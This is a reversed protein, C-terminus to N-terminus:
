WSKLASSNRWGFQGYGPKCRGDSKSSPEQCQPHSGGLPSPCLHARGGVKGPLRTLPRRWATCQPGGLSRGGTQEGRLNLGSIHLWEPLFTAM